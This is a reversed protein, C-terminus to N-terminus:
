IWFLPSCAQLPMLLAAQALLRMNSAKFSAARMRVVVPVRPLDCICAMNRDELDLLWNCLATISAAYPGAFDGTVKGAADADRLLPATGGKAKDETLLVALLHAPGLKAADGGGAPFAQLCRLM